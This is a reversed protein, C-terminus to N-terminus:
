LELRQGAVLLHVAWPGRQDRGVLDVLPLGVARQPRQRDRGARLHRAVEQEPHAVLVGAASWITAVSSLSRWWFIRRPSISSSEAKTIIQRTSSSSSGSASSLHQGLAIGQRPMVKGISFTRISTLEDRDDTPVRSFVSRRYKPM